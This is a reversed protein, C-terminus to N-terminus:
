LAKRKTLKIVWYVSLDGTLFGGLRFPQLQDVNGFWSILASAPVLVYHLFFHNNSLNRVFSSMHPGKQDSRRPSFIVTPNSKISTCAYSSLMIEQVLCILSVVCSCKWFGSSSKYPLLKLVNQPMYVLSLDRTQEKPSMRQDRQYRIM